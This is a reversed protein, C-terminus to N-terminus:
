GLSELLAPWRDKWPQAQEFAASARLVMPDDLHRGVIQLGVPLGDDTWGAPVTAAPQGTMNFPFTFSLWHAPTVPVGDITPPGPINLDFAAV